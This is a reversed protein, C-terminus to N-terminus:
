EKPTEVIEPPDIKGNILDELYYPYDRAYYMVHPPLDRGSNVYRRVMRKWVSEYMITPCAQKMMMLYDDCERRPYMGGSMILCDKWKKVEENCVKREERTV